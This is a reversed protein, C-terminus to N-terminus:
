NCPLTPDDVYTESWEGPINSEAGSDPMAPAASAAAEAEAKTDVFEVHDIAVQMGYVKKGEKTQYSYSELAGEVLIRRGKAFYRNIFEASKGFSVCDVFDTKRESSKPRDVAITIKTMAISNDKGCMKMEPDRALRGMLFIRNM